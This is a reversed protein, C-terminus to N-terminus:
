TSPKVISVTFYNPNLAAELALQFLAPLLHIGSRRRDLIITSLPNRSVTYRLAARQGFKVTDSETLVM